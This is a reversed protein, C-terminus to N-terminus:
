RSRQVYVEGPPAYKTAAVALAGMTRPPPARAHGALGAPAERSSKGRSHDEHPSPRDGTAQQAQQSTSAPEFTLPTRPSPVRLIAHARGTTGAQQNSCGLRSTQARIRELLDGSCQLPVALYRDPRGPQLGTAQPEKRACSRQPPPEAQPLPTPHTTTPCVM